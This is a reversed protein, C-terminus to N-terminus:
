SIYWDVGRSDLNTLPEDLLLLPVESYLALGLKMRQRMGTSLNKLYKKRALDLQFIDPLENQDADPRIKKFKFHFKVSEEITFDEILKLYPAVIAMHRYVDDVLVEKSDIQYKISGSSPITSGSIIKLLTSKGSGNPGTIAYQHGRNFTADLKRFIWERNYRKNVGNLSIQM